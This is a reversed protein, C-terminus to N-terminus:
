ALLWGALPQFFLHVSTSAIENAQFSRRWFLWSWVMGPAFYRLADHTVALPTVPALSTVNAWVNLAQSLGFALWMAGDAPRGDVRRWVQGILLALVSGLFLRYIINENFARLMYLAMREGLPVRTMFHAYSGHLTARFLWDMGACGVAVLAAVAVPFILARPGSQPAVQLGIRAAAAAGAWAMAVILAARLLPQGLSAKAFLVDFPAMAAIAAALVLGAILRPDLSARPAQPLAIATVPSASRPSASAM